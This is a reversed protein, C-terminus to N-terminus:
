QTFREYKEVEEKSGLVIPVRQSVSNPLINMPNKKNSSAKGGAQMVIYSMPNVEFLLRLKGEPAKSNAPYMFIGGKLLVRHVDAVMAAAYRLSYPKDAKKISELYKKLGESYLNLNGENIAYISGSAPIKIDPHSLLFSGISPDLTFGNVGKGASYVCMVSPGYLFYGAAVQESGKKFMGSGKHYISFITGLNINVDINSSGDLPDFFVVYEGTKNDSYVFDPLEESGVAFVEGSGLLMDTMLKNAFEDIKKVDEGYINKEGTHSMIDVIGSKKVHSAIIKAANEIHTMLLTFSGKAQPFEKEEALVFETLTTIKNYM